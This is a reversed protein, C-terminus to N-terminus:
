NKTKIDFPDPKYTGAIIDEKGQREHKERKKGEPGDYARKIVDDYKDPYYEKMIKEASLFSIEVNLEPHQELAKRYFAEARAVHYESTLIAVKKLGLDYILQLVERINEKTNRSVKELEIKVKELAKFRESYDKRNRLGNILDSFQTSYIEAESPIKYDPYMREARPSVGGSFIFKCAKKQLYLEVGAAIRIGGGSLGMETPSNFDTAVFRAGEGEGIKKVNAGLVVVADYEYEIGEKRELTIEMGMSVMIVNNGFFKMKDLFVFVAKRRTKAASINNRNICTRGQVSVLITYCLCFLIALKQDKNYFAYPGTDSLQGGVAVCNSAPPFDSCM